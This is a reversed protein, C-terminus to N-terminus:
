TIFLGALSATKGAKFPMEPFLFLKLSFFIFFLPWLFATLGFTQFFIDSLHAGVFGALNTAKQPESPQNNFSPDDPNFSFLSIALLVAFAVLIVGLIEKKLNSRDAPHRRGM